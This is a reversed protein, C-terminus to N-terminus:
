SAASTRAMNDASYQGAGSAVFAFLGGILAMGLAFIQYDAARAIPNQIAWFDHAVGIWASTCIILVFASFRTRFGSVLGISGFFMALLSLTLLMAGFPIHRTQVLIKMAGWENIRQVAQSTFFWGLLVRGGLAALGRLRVSNKESWGM